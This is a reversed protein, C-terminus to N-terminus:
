AFRYVDAALAEYPFWGGVLEEVLEHHFRFKFLGNNADLFYVAQGDYHIGVAHHAIEDGPLEFGISLYYCAPFNAIRVLTAFSFDKNFLETHHGVVLGYKEFLGNRGAEETKAKIVKGQALVMSGLSGIEHPKKVKIGKKIQAFWSCVYAGCIGWSDHFTAVHNDLAFIREKAM